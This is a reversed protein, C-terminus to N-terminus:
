GVFIAGESHAKASPTTAACQFAPRQFCQPFVGNPNAATERWHAKNENGRQVHLAALQHSASSNLLMTGLSGFRIWCGSCTKGSSFGCKLNCTQWSERSWYNSLCLAQMSSVCTEVDFALTEYNSPYTPMDLQSLFTGLISRQHWNSILNFCKILKYPQEPCCRATGFLFHSAGVATCYQCLNKRFCEM